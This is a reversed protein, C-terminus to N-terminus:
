YDDGYDYEDEFGANIEAESAMVYDRESHVKGFEKVKFKYHNMHKYYSVTEADNKSRYGDFLVKITKRDPSVEVIECVGAIPSELLRGARFSSDFAANIYSSRKRGKQYNERKGYDTRFVEQCEGPHIPLGCQPCVDKGKM